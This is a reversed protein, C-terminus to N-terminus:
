LAPAAALLGIVALAALIVAVVLVLDDVIRPHKGHM